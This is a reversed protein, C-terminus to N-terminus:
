AAAEQGMSPQAHRSPAPRDPSPGFIDPRLDHKSIGTLHEIALVYSPSAQYTKNLWWWIHGQKLGLGRALALQGGAIAVAEKLAQLKINEEM